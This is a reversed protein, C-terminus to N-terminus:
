EVSDVASKAEGAPDAHAVDNPNRSRARDFPVFPDRRPALPLVLVIPEPVMGVHATREAAILRPDDAIATRPINTLIRIRAWFLLGMPKVWLVCAAFGLLAMAGARGHHWSTRRSPNRM